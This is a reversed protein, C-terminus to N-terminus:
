AVRQAGSSKNAIMGATQRHLVWASPKGILPWAHKGLTVSLLDGGNTDFQRSFVVGLGVLAGIVFGGIHAWHAVGGGGAPTIASEVVDFAFYMLLFWFGRISFIKCAFAARFFLGLRIWMACVVRHVPFLILYAGALGMIAGSAGLMPGTANEGTAILYVTAAGIALIPYLIVTVVNGLLSNVRTGFVLLFLMNGGLHMALAFISSNDHLFAHTVLQYWHFEGRRGALLKQVELRVLDDDSMNGAPDFEQRLEDRDDGSLRRAVDRVGEDDRQQARAAWGLAVL